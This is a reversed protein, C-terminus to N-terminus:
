HRGAKQGLGEMCFSTRVYVVHRLGEMGTRDPSCSTRCAQTSLKETGIGVLMDQETEHGKVIVVAEPSPKLKKDSNM